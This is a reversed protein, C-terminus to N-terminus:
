KPATTTTSFNVAAYEGDDMQQQQQQPHPKPMHVTSYLPQQQQQQPHPKPMQVTSYLPVEQGRSSKFHISTYQVDDDDDDDSDTAGAGQAPDVNVYDNDVTQQTTRNSHTSERTSAATITKRRRRFAIVALVVLPVALVSVGVGAFVAVHQWGRGPLAIEVATANQSGLRNAAECHYLGATTSTLTINITGGSDFRTTKDGTKRYWTYSKVPPNADSSCTLTVLGEQLDDHKLLRTLKPPYLVNLHIVTSNRNGHKNQAQCYYDGSHESSVASISYNQHAAAKPVASENMKHWTYSQVPPNADSSCSLSVTNGELIEGSPSVSALMNKPPYQVDLHVDTSHSSGHQNKAMCYYLGSHESTINTMSYIQQSGVVSAAGGRRRYWTYSQVPPNADSSCTLTVSSGELIEGAPSVSALTNKPPYMVTIKLPPSPYDERGEVACSYEGEDETSISHLTLENNHTQTLPLVHGDKKWMIRSNQRLSCDSVCSLKVEQGEIAAGSIQIVLGKVRLSVLWSQFKEKPINTEIRAYYLATDTDRVDSLTMTCNKEKDASYQVRGEYQPRNRLDTTEGGPTANIIWYVETVTLHPPHTFSCPMVVSSGTVACIDGHPLTVGWREGCVGSISCMNYPMVRGM